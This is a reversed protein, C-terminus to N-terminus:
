QAKKTASNLIVPLMMLWFASDDDQYGPGNPANRVLPDFLNGLSDTVGDQWNTFEALDLYHDGDADTLHNAVDLANFYYMEWDDNLGDQDSDITANTTTQVTMKLLNSSTDYSYVFKQM